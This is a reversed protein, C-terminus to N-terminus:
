EVLRDALPQQVDGWVKFFDDGGGFGATGFCLGPVDLGSCGFSRHPTSTTPNMTDKKVFQDSLCVYRTLGALTDLTM